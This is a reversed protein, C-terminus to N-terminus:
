KKYNILKKLQIDRWESQSKEVAKVIWAKDNFTGLIYVIKYYYTGSNEGKVWKDPEPVEDIIIDTMYHKGDVVSIDGREMPHLGMVWINSKNNRHTFNKM